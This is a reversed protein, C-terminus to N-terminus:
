RVRTSHMCIGTKHLGDLPRCPFLLTLRFLSVSNRLLQPGAGGLLPLRGGRLLVFTAEFAVLRDLLAPCFSDIAIALCVLRVCGRVCGHVPHGALGALLAREELGHRRHRPNVCHTINALMRQWLWALACSLIIGMAEVYIFCKCSVVVPLFTLYRMSMARIRTRPKRSPRYNSPADAVRRDVGSSSGSWCSRVM